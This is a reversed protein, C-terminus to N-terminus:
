TKTLAYAKTQRARQKTRESKAIKAIVQARSLQTKIDRLVISIRPEVATGNREIIQEDKVPLVAHKLQANTLPGLVFLDGDELVVRQQEVGDESTLVFERADGLSLSIIDSGPKIDLMKDHHAGIEDKQEVYLTGIIHNFVAPKDNISLGQLAEKLEPMSSWRKYLKLSSWQFGTYGYKLFLNPNDHAFAFFKTRKLKHGRMMMAPNSRDNWPATQLLYEM